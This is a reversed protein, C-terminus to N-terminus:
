DWLSLSFSSDTKEQVDEEEFANKKAWGQGGKKGGDAQMSLCLPCVPVARAIKIAPRMYRLKGNM